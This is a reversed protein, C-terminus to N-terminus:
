RAYDFPSPNHVHALRNLQLITKKFNNRKLNPHLLASGISYKSFGSPRFGSERILQGLLSASKAKERKLEIIAIGEIEKTSGLPISVKLDIDITAREDFQPSVLTIRYFDTTLKHMWQSARYPSNREIFQITEDNFGADRNFPVRKKRTKGGPTKLKIEFFQDGSAHYNRIRLKYRRPKRRHHDYYMSQDPTDYYDSTYRMVTQGNIEVVYYQGQCSGLLKELLQVPVMYKSDVRNMFQASEARKLDIPEFRLQRFQAIFDSGEV